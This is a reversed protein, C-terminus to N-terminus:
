RPEDDEDIPVPRAQDLADAEPVEDDITPERPPDRDLVPMRQELADAEPVADETMHRTRRTTPM